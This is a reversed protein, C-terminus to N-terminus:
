INVERETGNQETGNEGCRQTGKVIGGGNKDHRTKTNRVRRIVEHSVGAPADPGVTSWRRLKRRRGRPLNSATEMENAFHAM